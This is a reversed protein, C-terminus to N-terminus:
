GTSSRAASRARQRGRVPQDEGRQKQLRPMIRAVTSEGFGTGVRGIYTLKGDKYTGALLSRFRGNTTADM